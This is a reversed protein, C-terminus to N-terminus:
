IASIERRQAHTVMVALRLMMALKLKKKPCHGFLYKSCASSNTMRIKELYSQHEM